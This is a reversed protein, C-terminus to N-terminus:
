FIFIDDMEFVQPRDSLGHSARITNLAVVPVIGDLYETKTVAIRFGSRSLDPISIVSDGEWRSKFM